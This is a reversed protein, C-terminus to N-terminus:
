ATSARGASSRRVRHGSVRPAAVRLVIASVFSATLTAWVWEPSATVLATIPWIGSAALPWLLMSAGLLLWTFGPPRSLGAAMWVLAIVVPPIQHPSIGGIPGSYTFAFIAITSIVIVAIASTALIDWAASRRAVVSARGAPRFPPNPRSFDHAFQSARQTSPAPKGAAASHFGPGDVRSRLEPNLLVRQADGLRITMAAGAAGAVDPHYM